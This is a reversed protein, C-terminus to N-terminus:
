NRKHFVICYLLQARYQAGLLPDININLKRNEGDYHELFLMTFFGCDNSVVVKPVPVYPLGWHSFDIFRGGTFSQFIDNLRKRIQHAIGGHIQKQQQDTWPSPDLIDIQGHVLNVCYVVWHMKQLVPLFVLKAHLIEEPNF